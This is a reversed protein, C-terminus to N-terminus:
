KGGILEEQLAKLEDWKGAAALKAQKPWSAPDHIQFKPGAAELIAKLKKGSAKGLEKFTLIGEAELLKSIKPGIGEIKTLNDKETKVVVEKAEKKEKKAKPADEKKEKKVAPKTAKAKKAKPAKEVVVSEEVVVTEEIAVAEEAPVSVVCNVSGFAENQVYQDANQDNVWTGNDLFYRYQYTKGAELPVIAALTGDKQIELGIAEDINWNNFDGLLLAKTADGLAEVPLKFTIKKM